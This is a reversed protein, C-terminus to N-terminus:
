FLPAIHVFSSQAPPPAPTVLLTVADFQVVNVTTGIQIEIPEQCRAIAVWDTGRFNVRGPCDPHVTEVIIGQEFPDMPQRQLTEHLLPSHSHHLNQDKADAGLRLILPVCTLGYRIVAPLKDPSWFIITIISFEVIQIIARRIVPKQPTTQKSPTTSM